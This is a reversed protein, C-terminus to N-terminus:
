LQDLSNNSIKACAMRPSDYLMNFHLLYAMKRSFRHMHNIILSYYCEMLSAFLKSIFHFVQTWILISIILTYAQWPNGNFYKSFFLKSLNHIRYAFIHLRSCKASQGEMWSLYIAKTILWQLQIEIGGVASDILQSAQRSASTVAATIAKPSSMGIPSLDWESLLLRLLTNQCSQTVM